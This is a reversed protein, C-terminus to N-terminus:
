PLDVETGLKAVVFARMAAILPTPGRMKGTDVREVLGAPGIALAEWDGNVYSTLMIREREIIPGGYSWHTSFPEFQGAMPAATQPMGPSDWGHAPMTGEAKAVAADLLEGDLEKVKHKM